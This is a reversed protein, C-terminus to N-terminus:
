MKSLRDSVTKALTILQPQVSEPTKGDPAALSMMFTRDGSKGVLIAAQDQYKDAPVFHMVYADGGFGSIPNKKMNPVKYNKLTGDIQEDAKPGSFLRITVVGGFDCLSGAEYPAEDLEYPQNRGTVQKIEANSLLSCTKIGTETRTRALEANVQATRSQAAVANPAVALVLVLLSIRSTTYSM